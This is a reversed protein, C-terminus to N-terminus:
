KSKSFYKNYINLSEISDELPQPSENIIIINKGEPFNFLLKKIERKPTIKHHKEGKDGYEIGSFHIHLEEFGSFMELTEKFLHSKYRALIHAFDLCFSIHTERVLRAVEDLDGFVNNKGMVEVALEPTYKRKKLVEQIEIIRAKINSYTENRSHKGYYGAHFVVRHAGLFTGIECCDIIRQKSAELIEPEDSNLNIYYPAHISLKIGLGKAKKGIKM